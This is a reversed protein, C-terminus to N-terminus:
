YWGLDPIGITGKPVTGLTGEYRAARRTDHGSNPCPASRMARMTPVHRQQSGDQSRPHTKIIQQPSRRNCYRKYVFTTDLFLEQPGHSRLARYVVEQNQNSGPGPGAVGVANERAAERICEARVGAGGSLWPDPLNNFHGEVRLPTGGMHAVASSAGLRAGLTLNHRYLSGDPQAGQLCPIHPTHRCSPHIPHPSPCDRWPPPM